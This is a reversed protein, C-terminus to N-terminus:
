ERKLKFCRWAAASSEPSKLNLMAHWVREFERQRLAGRLGLKQLGKSEANLCRWAIAYLTTGWVNCTRDIPAEMKCQKEDKTLKVYAERWEEDCRWAM